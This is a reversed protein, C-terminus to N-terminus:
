GDLMKGDTAPKFSPQPPTPSKMASDWGDNGGDPPPVVNIGFERLQDLFPGVGQPLSVDMIARVITLQEGIVLRRAAREHEASGGHGTGHAIVAGLAEPAAKAITEANMGDTFAKQLAPFRVILAVFDDFSIGCIDLEKGRIPVTRKTDVIDLLDAM